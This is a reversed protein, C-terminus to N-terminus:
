QTVPNGDSDLIAIPYRLEKLGPEIVKRDGVIVIAMKSPDLYKNAVRNVDDLTVANVMSIYDNFYSDPLGYVVLNALNASIQGVTEFGAPYRRILSQKNYDLEKQTIPITGRIGNLEKMLEWVSEKTVATQMDGGARFPGAGRRFQFGSNAGYTYGKDERLNMSIRSTIAGGLISNMVVVPMYDASMRDVGVQGVSVVSQASNPRDVIYVGTRDLSRASPLAKAAVKGNSSWGGFAKELNSKLTGKDFDGVVILVGNDPRFTNQYYNVLDDRTLAKITMENNDRGYPHDGYLM